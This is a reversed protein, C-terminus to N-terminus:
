IRIDFNVCYFLMREYGYKTLLHDTQYGLTLLSHVSPKNYPSATACLLDIGRARAERGLHEGLLVQLGRGRWRPRVICIKFNASTYASADIKTLLVSLDEGDGPQPVYMVAFGALEEGVWAGLCLHPPQLCTEWMELTNRRLLDPRELYAIAEQEIALIDGLQGLGCPRVDPFSLGM